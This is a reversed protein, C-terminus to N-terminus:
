EREREVCVSEVSVSCEESVFMCVSEREREKWVSVCGRERERERERRLVYGCERSVCERCICVCM